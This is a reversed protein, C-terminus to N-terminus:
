AAVEIRVEKFITRGFQQALAEPGEHRNATTVIGAHVARYCIAQVFGM